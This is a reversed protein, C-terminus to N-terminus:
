DIDKDTYLEKKSVVKVKMGNQLTKNIAAFPAIVVKEDKNLGAIIEVFQNDSLGSKIERLEVKNDNKLVFVYEKIEQNENNFNEASDTNDRTTLAVYPIALVGLHEDTKINVTASMGERFPEERKTEEKMEKLSNDSIIISVYYNTTQDSMAAINSQMSSINENTQSIKSVYGNLTNKPYVDTKITASDNINIKQIENENISVVVKLVSLDAITMLEAGIMQSNGMVSEGEQININSVVGSIPAYVNQFQVKSKSEQIGMQPIAIDFIPKSNTSKITALIQGKQVKQGESVFLKSITGANEAFIKRTVLPYIKGNSYVTETIDKQVVEQVAVQVAKDKKFLKFFTIISILIILLVIWRKKAKSM